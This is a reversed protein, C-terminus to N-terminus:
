RQLFTSAISRSPHNKFAFQPATMLGCPAAPMMAASPCSASRSRLSRSPCRSRCRLWQRLRQYMGSACGTATHEGALDVHIHDAHYADSEPGLVTNFRHCAADRLRQRFSQPTSDRGAGASLFRPVPTKTAAAAITHAMIRLPPPRRTSNLWPQASITGNTISSKHWRPFSCRPLSLLLGEGFYRV